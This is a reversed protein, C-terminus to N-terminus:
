WPVARRIMAASGNASEVDNSRGDRGHFGDSATLSARDDNAGGGDVCVGGSRRRACCACASEGVVPLLDRRTPSCGETLPGAGGQPRVM